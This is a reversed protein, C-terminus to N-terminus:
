LTNSTISHTVCQNEYNRSKREFCATSQTMLVAGGSPALGISPILVNLNSDTQYTDNVSPKHTFDCGQPPSLTFIIDSGEHSPRLKLWLCAGSAASSRSWM